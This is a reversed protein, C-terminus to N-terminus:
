CAAYMWPSIGVKLCLYCVLRVLLDSHEGNCLPSSPSLCEARSFVQHRLCSFILVLCVFGVSHHRRNTYTM